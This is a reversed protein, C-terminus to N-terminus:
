RILELNARPILAFEELGLDVEAVFLREGSEVPQPFPPLTAVRGIAGLHPDRAVRVRSGVELPQPGPKESPLEDESRLPIIIEPRKVDWRTQTDASVVAERGKNADLLSFIHESMPLSGFGETLLVPFPLSELASRLDANVSGVVIARVSAEVAQELMSDDALHGAVIVTGHCSVDISRPRLPKRPNDVLMKLVGEAEGGTGWVGQILLGVTSIVVGLNPMVNTVQGKLHARLEITAPAAEILVLGDRVDLVRGEVPSRCGRRLRGLLGGPAALVEGGQVADGVKKTLYKAVRNAPVRLERAADVVRVKGPVLCRAVVDAPGVVEGPRVLVEGRSPLMRERRITTMPTIRTEVPYYM